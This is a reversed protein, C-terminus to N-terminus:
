RSSRLLKWRNWKHSPTWDIKSKYKQSDRIIYTISFYHRSLSVIDLSTRDWPDFSIQLQSVPPSKRRRLGLPLIGKERSGRGVKGFHGSPPLFFSSFASSSRFCFQYQEQGGGGGRERETGMSNPLCRVWAGGRGERDETEAGERGIIGEVRM